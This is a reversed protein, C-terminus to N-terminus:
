DHYAMFFRNRRMLIKRSKVMKDLEESVLENSDEGLQIDACTVYDFIQQFSAGQAGSDEIAELIMDEM